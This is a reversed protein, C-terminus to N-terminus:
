TQSKTDSIKSYDITMTGDEHNEIIDVFTQDKKFNQLRYTYRDYVTQSYTGDHGVLVCTVALINHSENSLLPKLPSEDDIIHMVQWSLIFFPSRSRVLKIENIRRIHQGETTTTDILASASCNADIIDNGRINGMRFSFVYENNMKHIVANQSFLIKAKPRAIKAFILGTMVAMSIMGSFAEIAVVCNGFHNRPIIAGYGITAFTQISFYFADSFSNMPAISEPVLFYMTAFILNLFIYIAAFLFLTIPWSTNMLLYYYDKVFESKLGLRKVSGLPLTNKQSM